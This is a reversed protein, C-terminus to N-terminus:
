VTYSIGSKHRLEQQIRAFVEDVDGVGDVEVLTGAARFQAIVPGMERAYIRLRRRVVDPQDDPRAILREGCNACIAAEGGETSQYISGCKGCILRRSLRAISVSEPVDILVAASLQKGLEAMIAQFLAMQSRTRPFGDLVFGNACDPSALRSRIIEAVIREPVLLGHELFRKIQRGLETEAQAAERLLEGTDVYPVGYARSLMRAQTGKGSGPPGLLM